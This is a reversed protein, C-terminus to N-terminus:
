KGGGNAPRALLNGATQTIPNIRFGHFLLGEKNPRGQGQDEQNAEATTGSLAATTGGMGTIVM